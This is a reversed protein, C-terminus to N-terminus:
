FTNEHLTNDHTPVCEAAASNLKDGEAQVGGQAGKSSRERTDEDLLSDSQLKTPLYADGSLVLNDLSILSGLMAFLPHLGLSGVLLWSVVCRCALLDM